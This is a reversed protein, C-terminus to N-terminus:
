NTMKELFRVVTERYDRVLQLCDEHMTPYAYQTLTHFENVSYCHPEGFPKMVFVQYLMENCQALDLYFRWQYSEMYRDFDFRQTTKYDTIIKLESWVGDAHGVVKMGDYTGILEVEREPAVAVDIDGCAFDFRYDGAKITPLELEGGSRDWTEIFWHLATGAAMREIAAEDDTEVGFVKPLLWMDPLGQQRWVRYDELRTVRVQELLRNEKILQKLTELPPLQVTTPQTLTLSM